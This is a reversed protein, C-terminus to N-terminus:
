DTRRSDRQTAIPITAQIIRRRRTISGVGSSLIEQGSWRILNGQQLAPEIEGRNKRKLLTKPSIGFRAAMEETTLMSGIREPVLAPGLAALIGVIQLFEPWANEENAEVRVTFQQLRAVLLPEAKLLVVRYALTMPSTEVWSTRHEPWELEAFELGIEEPDRWQIGLLEKLVTSTAKEM